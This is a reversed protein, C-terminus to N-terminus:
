SSFNKRKNIFVLSIVALLLLGSFGIVNSSDGTAPLTSDNPKNIPPLTPEEGNSWQAYLTLGNAPMKMTEFDWNTGRGDASTNWGILTYGERTPVTAISVDFLSDTLVEFNEVDGTGNNHDLELPQSLPIYQATLVLDNVTVPDNEVDWKVQDTTYWGVFQYGDRAPEAYMLSSLVTEGHPIELSLSTDRNNFKGLGADLLVNHIEVNKVSFKWSLVDSFPASFNVTEQNQSSIGQYTIVHIANSPIEIKYVTEPSFNFSADNLVFKNDTIQYRSTDKLTFTDFISGDVNKIVIEAKLDLVDADIHESLSIWVNGQNPLVMLDGSQDPSVAEELVTSEPLWAGLYTTNQHITNASSNMSYAYPTTDNVQVLVEDRTKLTSKYPVLLTGQENIPQINWSLENVDGNLLQLMNGNKIVFPNTFSSIDKTMFSTTQGQITPTNLFVDGDQVFKLARNPLVTGNSTVVNVYAYEKLSDVVVSTSGVNFTMSNFYNTAYGEYFDGSAEARLVEFGFAYDVSPSELIFGDQVNIVIDKTLYNVNNANPATMMGVGTGMKDIATLHMGAGINLTSGSSYLTRTYSGIGVNASNVKISAQNGIDVQKIAIPYQTTVFKTFFATGIVVQADLNVDVNAQNGIKIIGVNGIVTNVTRTTDGGMNIILNDGITISGDNTRNTVTANVLNRGIVTDINNQQNLVHITLDNGINMVPSDGTIVGLYVSDLDLTARHGLSLNIANIPLGLRYNPVIMSFDDGIKLTKALIGGVNNPTGDNKLNSGKDLIIRENNGIEIDSVDFIVYQTITNSADLHREITNTLLMHAGILIKKYTFSDGNIFRLVNQITLYDGVVINDIYGFGYGSTSDTYAYFNGLGISSFTGNARHGDLTVRDGMYINQIRPQSTGPVPISGADAYGFRKSSAGVLIENYLRDDFPHSVEVGRVTVGNPIHIDRVLSGVSIIQKVEQSGEAVQIDRIYYLNKGQTGTNIEVGTDIIIGSGDEVLVDIAINKFANGITTEDGFVLGDVVGSGDDNSTIVSATGSNVKLLINGQEGALYKSLVEDTNGLRYQAMINEVTFESVSPYMTNFQTDAAFSDYISLLYQNIQPLLDDSLSFTPSDIIVELAYPNLAAANVEAMAEMPAMDAPVEEQTEETTEPVDTDESTTGVDENTTPTNQDLPAEDLAFGSIGLGSLLVMIGVMAAVIRKSRKKVNNKKM